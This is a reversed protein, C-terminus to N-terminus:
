EQAIKQVLDYKSERIEGTSWSAISYKLKKKSKQELYVIREDGKCDTKQFVTGDYSYITNQDAYYGHMIDNQYWTFYNGTFKYIFARKIRDYIFYENCKGKKLLCKVVM